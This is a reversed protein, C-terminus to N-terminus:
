AANPIKATLQVGLANMVALMTQLTLWGNKERRHNCFMEM